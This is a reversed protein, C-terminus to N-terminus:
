QNPAQRTVLAAATPTPRLQPGSACSVTAGMELGVKSLVVGWTFNTVCVSPVGALAAVACALPVIDSVVLDAEQSQLWAVEKELKAARGVEAVEHYEELSETCIATHHVDFPAAVLLLICRAGVHRM